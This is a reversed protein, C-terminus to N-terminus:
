LSCIYHTFHVASLLTHIPPTYEGKTVGHMDIPPQLSPQTLSGIVIYPNTTIHIGEDPGPGTILSNFYMPLLHSVHTGIKHNDAAINNTYWVCIIYM